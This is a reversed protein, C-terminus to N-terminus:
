STQITSPGFIDVWIKGQWAYWWYSDLFFMGALDEIQWFWYWDYIWSREWKVDKYPKSPNIGEEIFPKDSNAHPVFGIRANVHNENDHISYYGTLFADGLLWYSSSQDNVFALICSGDIQLVYDSAKVMMWKGDILLQIDHFLSQEACDIFFIGSYHSYTKGHLLRYFLDEGADGPTYILSTGTDFICPLEQEFQFSSTFGTEPM